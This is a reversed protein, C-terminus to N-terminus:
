AAVANRAADTVDDLRLVLAEVSHAAARLGGGDGGTAEVAPLNAELNVRAISAAARASAAAAAVDAVVSRNGIPLLDEALATLEACITILDRPARAAGVLASQIAARRGARAAEGESPLGYAAGVKAFAQADDEGARVARATLQAARVALDSIVAEVDAFKRGRSYGAVMSLLSGAFAAQLGAVTGGGPAPTRQAVQELLVGLSVSGLNEM